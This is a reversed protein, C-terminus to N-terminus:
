GAVGSVVSPRWVREVDELLVLKRASGVRLSVGLSLSRLSLVGEGCGEESGLNSKAVVMSSAVTCRTKSAAMLAM